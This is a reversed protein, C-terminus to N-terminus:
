KAAVEEVLRGIQVGRDVEGRPDRGGTQASRHILWVTKAAEAEFDPEEPAPPTLAEEDAEEQSPSAAEPAPAAEARTEERTETACAGLLAALLLLCALVGRVGALRQGQCPVGSSSLRKAPRGQM